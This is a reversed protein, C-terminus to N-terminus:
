RDLNGLDHEDFRFQKEPTLDECKVNRSFTLHSSRVGIDKEETAVNYISPVTLRRQM